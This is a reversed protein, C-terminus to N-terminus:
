IRLKCTNSCYQLGTELKAPVSVGLWSKCVVRKKSTDSVFKCPLTRLVLAETYSLCGKFNLYWPKETQCFFKTLIKTLVTSGQWKNWWFHSYAWSYNIFVLDFTYSKSPNNEWHRKELGSQIKYKYFRPKQGLVKSLIQFKTAWTSILTTHAQKVLRDRCCQVTSDTWLLWSEPNFM